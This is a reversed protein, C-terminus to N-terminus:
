ELSYDFYMGFPIDVVSGNPRSAVTNICFLDGLNGGDIYGLGMEYCPPEIM